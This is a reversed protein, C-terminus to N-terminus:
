SLGKELYTNKYDNVVVLSNDSCDYTNDYLSKVIAIMNWSRIRIIMKCFCDNM